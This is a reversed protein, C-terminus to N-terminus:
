VISLTKFDRIYGCGTGMLDENNYGYFDIKNSEAAEFDNMSDGILAYSSLSNNVLAEVLQTKPTPSGHISLFYSDLGLEKCLFRLEQQDSGSVIHMSFKKHNERIFDVSDMILNAPDTLLERMIVSFKEALDNVGEESISENRIQEFFYRFKVYRSLGGNKRHYTILENVQNTPYSKLVEIFGKDRIHMSELIVGDFDWLLTEYQTLKPQNM